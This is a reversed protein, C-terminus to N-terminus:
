VLIRCILHITIYVVMCRFLDWKECSGPDNKRPARCTAHCRQPRSPAPGAVAALPPGASRCRPGSASAAQPAPRHPPPATPRHSPWPFFPMYNLHVITSWMLNQFLHSSIHSYDIKLSIWNLSGQVPLNLVITLLKGANRPSSTQVAYQRHKTVGCYKAHVSM